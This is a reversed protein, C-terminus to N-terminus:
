RKGFYKWLITIILNHVSRNEKEAEAQLLKKLEDPLRLTTRTEDPM